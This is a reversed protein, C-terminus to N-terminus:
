SAVIRESAEPTKFGKFFLWFPLLIIEFAAVPVALLTGNSGPTVDVLGFWGAISVFFVESPEQVDHLGNAVQRIHLL